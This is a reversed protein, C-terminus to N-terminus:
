RIPVLTSAVPALAFDLSVTGRIRPAQDPRRRDLLLYRPRGSRLPKSESGAAAVETEWEGLFYRMWERRAVLPEDIEIVSDRRIRAAAMDPLVRFDADFAPVARRARAMVHRAAPLSLAFALALTAATLAQRWPLSRGSQGEAARLATLAFATLWVPVALPLFKAFGYPFSLRYTWALASGV